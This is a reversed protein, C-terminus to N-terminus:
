THLSNGSDASTGFIASVDNFRSGAVCCVCVCVSSRVHKVTDMLINHLGSVLHVLVVELM